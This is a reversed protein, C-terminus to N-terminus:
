RGLSRHWWSQRAWDAHLEAHRDALAKLEDFMAAVDRAMRIQDAKAHAVEAWAGDREESLPPCLSEFEPDIILNM